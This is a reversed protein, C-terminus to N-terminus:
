RERKNKWIVIGSKSFNVNPSRWAAPPPLKKEVDCDFTIEAMSILVDLFVFRCPMYCSFSFMFTFNCLILRPRKKKKKRGTIELRSSDSPSFFFFPKRTRKQDKGMSSKAGKIFLVITKRKAHLMGGEDRFNSSPKSKQKPALM